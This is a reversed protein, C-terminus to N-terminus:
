TEARRKVREQLIGLRYDTGINFWGKELMANAVEHGHVITAYLHWDAPEQYVDLAAASTQAEGALPAFEGWHKALAQASLNRPDPWRRKYLNARRVIEDATLGPTVAKIDALAVAVARAAARPLQLLNKTGTALALADFLPDRGRPAGKPKPKRLVGETHALADAFVVFEAETVNRGTRAKEGKLGDWLKKGYTM